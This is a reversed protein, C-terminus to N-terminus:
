RVKIVPVSTEEADSKARIFYIGNPVFRGHRDRANWTLEFGQHEQFTGDALVRLLRGGTDHVSVRTRRGEPISLSVRIYDRFPHRSVIRLDLNEVLPPDEGPPGPPDPPDPPDPPSSTGDLFSAELADWLEPRAGDYGLAWIGVGALNENRVYDYKATLSQADDYWTQVWNSTEFRYWPTSSAEDWLRGHFEAGVQADDFLMANGSSTTPAGPQDSTTSWRLGYYPVGLLMKERPAQWALYDEVTWTVNYTGWGDLPSVPGSNPSGSWTYNYAMIMLHDVHAALADYDFANTWDVAPTAISVYPVTPLSNELAARLEQMFLVLEVKRSGPMNEFDINVGDAGGALVADVLNDIANTRLSPNGLLQSLGSSSFLTATVLVRVGNAHALSVLGTWPWGHADVINGNGDLDLGFFAVTSLAEWHYSTYSNGMWYPHYGHVEHTLSDLLGTRPQLPIPPEPAPM